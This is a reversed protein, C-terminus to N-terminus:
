GFVRITELTNFKVGKFREVPTTLEEKLLAAHAVRNYVYIAHDTAYKWFRVSLQAHTLSMRAMNRVTQIVREIYSAFYHHRDPPAFEFSIGLWILWDKFEDTVFGSQRDLVVKLLKVGM